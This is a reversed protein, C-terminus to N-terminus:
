RMRKEIRLMCNLQPNNLAGDGSEAHISLSQM